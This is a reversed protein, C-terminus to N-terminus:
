FSIINAGKGAEIALNIHNLDTSTKGINNAIRKTELKVRKPKFNKVHAELDIKRMFDSADKVPRALDAETANNLKGYDNHQPYVEIKTVFADKNNQLINLEIDQIPYAIGKGEIQEKVDFHFPDFVISSLCDVIPLNCSNVKTYDYSEKKGLYLIPLYVDLKLDQFKFQLSTDNGQKFVNILTKIANKTSYGHRDKSFPNLNFLGRSVREISNPTHVKKWENLWFTKIDQIDIGLGILCAILASSGTAGIADYNDVVRKNLKLEIEKLAEIIALSRTYGVDPLVLIKKGGYSTPNLPTASEILKFDTEIREKRKAVSNNWIPSEQFLSISLNIAKSAFNDEEPLEETLAEEENENIIELALVNGGSEATPYMRNYLQRPSELSSDCLPCTHNAAGEFHYYPHHPDKSLNVRKLQTSLFTNYSIQANM